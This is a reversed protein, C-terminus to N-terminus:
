NENQKGKMKKAQRGNAKLSKLPRCVPNSVM